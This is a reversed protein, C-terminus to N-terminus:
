GTVFPNGYLSMALSRALDSSTAARVAANGAEYADLVSSGANWAQLFGRLWPRVMLFPIPWSPAVVADLGKDLLQHAIGVLGGGEPHQDLRGGSCVFLLAVRSAKLVDVLQRLRTRRARVRGREVM